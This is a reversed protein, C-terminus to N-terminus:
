KKGKFADSLAKFSMPMIEPLAGSRDGANVYPTPKTRMLRSGDKDIYCYLILDCMGCVINEAAGTMTTTMYTWSADKKKLEKEKAHSIFVMGFGMMNIGNVVKVFEDRVLSFGKGYPLDSPHVAGNISMVHRECLKHFLDVIDIIITKYKHEQTKLASFIEYVGRWDQVDVKEVSVFNHGQETALFLANDFEAAFTTKGVKPLGYLLINMSNLDKTPRTKEIKSLDFAM